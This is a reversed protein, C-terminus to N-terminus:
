TWDAADDWTVRYNAAVWAARADALTPLTWGRRNQDTHQVAGLMRMATGLRKSGWKIPVSRGADSMLADSSVWRGPTKTLQIGDRPMEADRVIQLAWEAEPKLTHGKQENLAESEVIDRPHWDGLDEALLDFLMAGLGGNGMEAKLAKFYNKDGRRVDSVNSIVFRRADAGVPVVWENNSSVLIHLLNDVAYSNINKPEVRITRETIMGKLTGEHSKDGAWYCEDAFLFICEAMHLNFKSGVFHAPNTVHVAHTGIIEALANGLMGKGVGETGRLAITAEAREGPHQFMWAIWRLIYEGIAPDGAAIVDVIHRRLLTWTGQKPRVAFGRWTNLAGPPAVSPPPWIGVNGYTKRDRHKLWYTGLPKTTPRDNNDVGPIQVTRNDLTTKFVEM